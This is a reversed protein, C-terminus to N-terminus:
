ARNTHYSQFVQMRYRRGARSVSMESESAVGLAVLCATTGLLVLASILVFPTKVARPHKTSSRLMSAM